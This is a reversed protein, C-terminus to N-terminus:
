LSVNTKSDRSDELKKLWDEETEDFRFEYLTFKNLICWDQKLKDRQRAKLYALKTDHFFGIHKYHQQGNPEFIKRLGPIMFDFFYTSRKPFGKISVEEFVTFMPFTTKLFERVQLHLKSKNPSQELHKSLNVKYEKGDLGAYTM